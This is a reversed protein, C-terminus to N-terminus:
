KSLFDSLYASPRTNNFSNYRFARERGRRVGERVWGRRCDRLRYDVRLCRHETRALKVGLQALTFDDTKDAYKNATAGIAKSGSPTVARALVADADADADADTLASVQAPGTSTSHVARLTRASSTALYPGNTSSPSKWPAAALADPTRTSHTRATRM